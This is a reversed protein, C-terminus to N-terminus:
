SVADFFFDFRERMVEYEDKRLLRLEETLVLVTGFDPEIGQLSVTGLIVQDVESANEVIFNLMSKANTEDQDQQLPSDIVLPATFASGYEKITSYIAMDYALLARPQDSGTDHVRCDIREVSSLEVTRVNLSQLNKTMREFYYGEIEQKRKKSNYRSLQKANTALSQDINGITQNLEQIQQVLIAAAVKRGESQLVDRLQVDGRKITLAETVSGISSEVTQVSNRAEKVQEDVVSLEQHTALIFDRCAERDDLIAFRSAFSNDHVTGCTPCLIQNEPVKELWRYDKDLEELSSKAISLEHDLLSRRSTLRALESAALQRRDRLLALERLLQAIADEFDGPITELGLSEVTDTVKDVASQLADRKSAADARELELERERARLRYYQNPRIGTHYFVTDSRSNPFQQLSAFSDFASQWGRDQDVYFPLFAYAPPPITTQGDRATLVLGFDLLKALFPGLERTIGSGSFLLRQDADFIAVLKRFRVATYPVEDITFDLAGLVGAAKWKPHTVAPDAGLVWYISKLLSSKGTDNEGLVVTLRSDFEIKRAARELHSLLSLTKFRLSKM